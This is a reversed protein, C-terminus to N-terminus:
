LKRPPVLTSKLFIVRRAAYKLTLLRATNPNQVGLSRKVERIGVLAQVDNPVRLRIHLIGNRSLLHPLRSGTM